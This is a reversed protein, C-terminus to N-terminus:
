CHETISVIYLCYDSDDVARAAANWDKAWVTASKNIREDNRIIYYEVTFSSDYRRRKNYEGPWALYIM